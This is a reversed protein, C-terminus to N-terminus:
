LSCHQKTFSASNSRTRKQRSRAANRSGSRTKKLLRGVAALSTGIGHKEQIMDVIQQKSHYEGQEIEEVIAEEINALKGKRGGGSILFLCDANDTNMKKSISKVTKECFGTIGAVEDSAVGVALLVICVIRKALTEPMFLRLFAIVKAVNAKAYHEQRAGCTTM